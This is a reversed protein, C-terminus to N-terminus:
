DDTAVHLQSRPEDIIEQIQRSNAFALHLEIEFDNVSMGQQTIGDFNALRFDLLLMQRKPEIEGSLFNIQSRVGRSKLLDKPVEDFVRHLKSGPVPLNGNGRAVIALIMQSNFNGIGAHPNLGLGQRFNEISKLLPPYRLQASQPESKGDTFGEDFRM